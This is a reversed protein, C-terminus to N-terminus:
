SASGRSITENLLTSWRDAQRRRDYQRLVEDPAGAFPVRTMAIAQRAAARITAGDRPDAAVGTGTSRILETAPGEPALLLIPKRLALCEYTKGALSAQGDDAVILLVDWGQMLRLAQRHPVFPRVGLRDAPISRRAADVQDVSLPGVLELRVSPGAALSEEVVAGIADFIPGVDVSAQFSGAYGITTGGGHIAQDAGEFLGELDAPDFGNPIDVFKHTQDPYRDAYRQVSAASVTVVRSAARISRAELRREFWRRWPRNRAHSPRLTWEDRLDMVLPVQLREALRAALPHVSHPPGSSLIIDPRGLGGPPRHALRLAWPAWRDPVALPSRAVSRAAALIRFIRSRPDMRQKAASTLGRGYRGLPHAVRFVRLDDPLERLLTDDSHELPPEDSCVVTVRWGLPALYKILKVIRIVGGGGVPPFEGVIVLLHPRSEQNM